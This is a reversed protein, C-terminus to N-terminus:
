VFNCRSPSGTLKPTPLRWVGVGQNASKSKVLEVAEESAQFRPSNPDIQFPQALEFVTEKYPGNPQQSVRLKGERVLEAVLSPGDEIAPGFPLRVVPYSTLVGTGRQWYYLHAYYFAKHLRVKGVLKGGAAALTECIVQKAQERQDHMPRAGREYWYQVEIKAASIGERQAM